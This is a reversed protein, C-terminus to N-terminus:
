IFPFYFLVYSEILITCSFVNVNHNYEREKGGERGGKERGEGRYHSDQSCRREGTQSKEKCPHCGPYKEVDQGQTKLAKPFGVNPQKLKIGYSERRKDAM